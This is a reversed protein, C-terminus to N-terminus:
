LGTHLSTGSFVYNLKTFLRLRKWLLGDKEFCKADAFQGQLKSWPGWHFQAHFQRGLKAHRTDVYSRGRYLLHGSLTTRPDEFTRQTRTM